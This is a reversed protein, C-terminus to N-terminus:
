AGNRVQDLDRFREVGADTFQEFFGGVLKAAVDGHM